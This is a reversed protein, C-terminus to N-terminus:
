FAYAPGGRRGLGARSIRGLAAPVAWRPGAIGGFLIALILGFGGSGLVSLYLIVVAGPGVWVIDPIDFINTKPQLLTLFTVQIPM